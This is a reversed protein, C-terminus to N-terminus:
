EVLTMQGVKEALTMRALLDDARAAAPLSPDLYAPAEDAPAAETPAPEVGTLTAGPAADEDGGATEDLQQCAVLLLVLLLGLCFRQRSRIKM